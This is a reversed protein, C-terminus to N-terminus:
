GAKGNREPRRPERLPKGSLFRKITEFPLNCSIATAVPAPPALIILSPMLIPKVPTEPQRNPVPASSGDLNAVTRAHQRTIEATEAATPNEPRYRNCISDLGTPHAEPEPDEPTPDPRLWPLGCVRCSRLANKEISDV